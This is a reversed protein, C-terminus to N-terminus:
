VRGAGVFVSMWYGALPDLTVGTSPNSAHVMMGGGVYIGVHSIPSYFFLLDGPVLSNADVRTTVDYQAVSSHPLSVGASAWAASTLGSCDYADPGSAGFVYAKGVQARAFAM